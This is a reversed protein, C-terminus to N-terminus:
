DFLLFRLWIVLPFMSLRMLRNSPVAMGGRDLVCLIIPSEPTSYSACCRASISLPLGLFRIKEYEPNKNVRFRSGGGQAEAGLSSISCILDTSARNALSSVAVPAGSNHHPAVIGSIDLNSSGRHDCLPLNAHGILFPQQEDM